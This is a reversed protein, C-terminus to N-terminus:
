QTIMIKMIMMSSQLVDYEYYDDYIDLEGIVPIINVKNCLRKMFEIDLEKLKHGNPAIFYLCAHVRTIIIIVM